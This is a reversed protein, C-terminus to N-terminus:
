YAESTYTKKFIHWHLLLFWGVLGFSGTQCGGSLVYDKLSSCLGHRNLDVIDGWVSLCLPLHYDLAPGGCAIGMIAIGLPVTPSPM